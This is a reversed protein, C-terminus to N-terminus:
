MMLAFTAYDIIELSLSLQGGDLKSPLGITRPATLLLSRTNTTTDITAELVIWMQMRSCGQSTPLRTEEGISAFLESMPCSVM